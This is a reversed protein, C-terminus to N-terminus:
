QNIIKVVRNLPKFLIICLIFNSIGHLIDTPLGALWWAIATNIGSTIIYVPSCLLGFLLGFMGSVISFLWVSQKKRFLYVVLVLIAWIYLYAFWWLGFGFLVGEILYFAPLVYVMKEQFFLTYIIFLLTVMEVGAIFSLSFKVAEIISLMIGILVIDKTTIRLKDKAMCYLIRENLKDYNLVFFRCTIVQRNRPPSPPIQVRAGTERGVGKAPAGRRGRSYKEMSLFLM